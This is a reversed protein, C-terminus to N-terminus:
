KSTKNMDNLILQKIYKGKGILKGQEKAHNYLKMELESNKSFTCDIREYEKKVLEKM